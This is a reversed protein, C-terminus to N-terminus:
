FLAYSAPIRDLAPAGTKIIERGKTLLSFTLRKSLSFFLQKRAHPGSSVQSKLIYSVICYVKRGRGEEPVYRLYQKLPM